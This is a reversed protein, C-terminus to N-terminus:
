EDRTNRWEQLYEPTSISNELINQPKDDIWIDVVGPGNHLCWFRKAVGNTYYVEFGEEYLFELTECNDLEESRATVIFVQHGRAAAKDMFDKWLEPDSTYTQDYDVAIKVM